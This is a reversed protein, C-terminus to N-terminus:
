KWTMAFSYKPDTALSQPARQVPVLLARRVFLDHHVREDVVRAAVADPRLRQLLAEVHVVRHELVRELLQLGLAEDRGEFVDLVGVLLHEDLGGDPGRVAGGAPGPVRVLVEVLGKDLLQLADDEVKNLALAAVQAGMMM